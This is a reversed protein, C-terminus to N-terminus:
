VDFAQTEEENYPTLFTHQAATQLDRWIQNLTSHQMVMEMGMYRSLHHACALATTASKKCALSFDELKGQPLTAGQKHDHWASTVTEYFHKEAKKWREMEKEWKSLVFAHKDFNGQQWKNKNREATEKVEDLFNKGIGLVIAAFSSESFPLFPFQHVSDAYNNKREFLSFTREAPVFQNDVKISHSSTGVLGFADWDFLINVQEPNLIFSRIEEEKGDTEITCNATFFSAYPSGSCFKWEGNVIYGDDTKVAKGAPFGSGAIVANEPTFYDEAINKHFCPCFMGGGAGITIAWGFNGEIASAEQFIKLAEPLEMGRGELSVPVFLKFLKKQYVIDLISPPLTKEKEIAVLEKRIFNSEDKTFEM